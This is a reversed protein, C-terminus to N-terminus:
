DLQNSAPHYSILRNSYVDTKLSVPECIFLKDGLRILLYNYREEFLLKKILSQINNKDSEHKVPVITRSIDLDIVTPYKIALLKIM